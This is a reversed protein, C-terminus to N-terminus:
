DDRDLRSLPFSRPAQRGAQKGAQGECIQPATRRPASIDEKSSASRVEDDQISPSPFLLSSVPISSAVALESLLDPISTLPPSAAM